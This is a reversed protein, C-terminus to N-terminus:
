PCVTDWVRVPYWSKLLIMLWVPWSSHLSLFSWVDQHNPLEQHKWSLFKQFTRLTFSLSLLSYLTPSTFSTFGVKLQLEVTLLFRFSSITSWHLLLNSPFITRNRTQFTSFVEAYQHTSLFSGISSFLQLYLLLLAERVSCSRSCVPSSTSKAKGRNDAGQARSSPLARLASWHGSQASTIM